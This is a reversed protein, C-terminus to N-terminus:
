NSSEDIKESGIDIIQNDDQFHQEDRQPNKESNSPPLSLEQPLFVDFSDEESVQAPLSKFQETVKDFNRNQQSILKNINDILNAELNRLRELENENGKLTIVDKIRTRVEDLELKKSELQGQFIKNQIARVDPSSGFVGSAENLGDSEAAINLNRYKGELETDKRELNLIDIILGFQDVIAAKALNRISNEADMLQQPTKFKLKESTFTKLRSRLHAELFKKIIQIDQKYSQFIDWKDKAVAKVRFSGYYVVPEKLDKLSDITIEFDWLDRRLSDFSKTLETDEMLLIISIGSAHFENTLLQTIIETLESKVSFGDPNNDFNFYFHDPEVTYLKQSVSDVVKKQILEDVDERPNLLHEIQRLDKIKGGCIISLKFKVNNYKTAFTGTYKFNFGEDKLKLPKLDPVTTLLRISYGISEAEKELEKKIALKDLSEFDLLLNIYKREFLIKPVIRDLKTRFWAQLNTIQAKKYKLISDIKDLQPDVELTNKITVPEPYEQIECKVDHKISFSEPMLISKDIESTFYEIQRGYDALINDLYHIIKSDVSETLRYCLDHLSVNQRLFARIERKLVEEIKPLENLSKLANLEGNQNILLNTYFRYNIAHESDKVLVSFYSSRLLCPKLEPKLNNPIASILRVTYGISEAEKKIENEVNLSVAHFESDILLKICDYNFLLRHTIQELKDIFWAELNLIKANRYRIIKEHQPKVDLTNHIILQKSFINIDCKVDHKILFSDPMLINKDIDIIFYELKRGYNALISDLRQVLHLRVFANLNYAFDYLDINQRLYDRIEKKLVDELKSLERYYRLANSEGNQSLVLNTTFKLNIEEEYDRVLIPFYGSEISFPQIDPKFDNPLTSILRISYGIAEAEKKLEEELTLALSDFNILLEIYEYGLLTKQAIDELKERFWAQLDVIKSKKYKLINEKQPKVNLTTNILLKKSYDRVECKVDHQILFSDPMAIGEEIETNFYDIKRGFKTLISNLYKVLAPHVSETFNFCLDAFHINNRLFNYIEQKLSDELNVLEHFHVIANVEGNESIILNTDFRFNIEHDYDCALIPFHTSRIAFNKLNRLDNPKLYLKLKLNLGVEENVKLEVYQQLNIFKDKYNNAFDEFTFKTRSYETLWAIMKRELTGGPTNGECLALAVTDEKGPSCTVQYSGTVSIRNNTFIDGIDFSISSIAQNEPNNSNSVLFFEVYGGLFPKKPLVKKKQLDVIVVKQTSSNIKSAESESVKRVVNDLLYVEAM